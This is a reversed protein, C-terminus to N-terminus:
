GVLDCASLIETINPTLVGIFRAEVDPTKTHLVVRVRQLMCVAKLM